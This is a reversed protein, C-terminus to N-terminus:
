ICQYSAVVCVFVYCTSVHKFLLLRLVAFRFLVCSLLFSVFRVVRICDRLVAICSLCNCLVVVCIGGFLCRFLFLCAILLYCLCVDIFSM